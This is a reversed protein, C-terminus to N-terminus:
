QVPSFPSTHPQRWRWTKGRGSHKMNELSLLHKQLDARTCLLILILICKIFLSDSSERLYRLRCFTKKGKRGPGQTCLSHHNIHLKGAEGLPGETIMELGTSRRQNWGEQTISGNEWLIRGRGPFSPASITMWLTVTSFSFPFHHIWCLLGACISEADRKTQTSLQIKTKGSFKQPWKINFRHLIMLRHNKVRSEYARGWPVFVPLNFM